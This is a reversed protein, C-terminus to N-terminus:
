QLIITAVMKAGGATPLWEMSYSGRPWSAVDINCTTAHSLHQKFVVKGQLDSCQLLGGSAGDPLLVELSQYGPNPYVRLAPSPPELKGIELPWLQVLSFAAAGERLSTDSNHYGHGTGETFQYSNTYCSALIGGNIPSIRVYKEQDAGGFIKDAVANGSSDTLFIWSDVGGIHGNPTQQIMTSQGAVYYGNSPGATINAGEEKNLDGYQKAWKLNGNKDIKFVFIDSNGHNGTFEFGDSTCSGACLLASDRPDFYGRVLKGVGYAKSWIINGLSDLKVVYPSLGTYGKRNSSDICDHDKTVTSSLLYYYRGDTLLDGFGEENGSTGIVKAWQKNGLSDVKLLFWDFQASNSGAYNFPIDGDSGYSAGLLLFGKDRTPQIAMSYELKSSGYAKSWLKNGNGDLRILTVDASGLTSCSFIAFGGTPIACCANTGVYESIDTYVKVWQKNGLSDIKGALVHTQYDWPIISRPIDGTGSDAVDGAWFVGKDSTPVATGFACGNNTGSIFLTKSVHLSQSNALEVTLSALLLFFTFSRM